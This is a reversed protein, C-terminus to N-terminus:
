ACRVGVCIKKEGSKTLFGRYLAAIGANEEEGLSFIEGSAPASM